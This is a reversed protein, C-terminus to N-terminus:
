VQHQATSVGAESISLETVFAGHDRYPESIRMAPGTYFVPTGDGAEFSYGNEFDKSKPRHEDGILVCDFSVRSQALLRNLDVDADDGRYPTLGDHLCLVNPGPSAAGFAIDSPTWERSHFKGVDDIGVNGAPIGYADVPTGAVATPNTSVETLRGKNVQESLWAVGDVSDAHDPEYSTHDHSGIIGYMPIGSESLVEFRFAVAELTDADVEHDLIDGTHIVADVERDIAIEVVRKVTDVSSIEDIWSVTKGSGTIARNEYGFHTDSVFLISTEEGGTVRGEAQRVREPDLLVDVGDGSRDAAPEAPFESLLAIARDVEDGSVKVPLVEGSEPAVPLVAGSPVYRKDEPRPDAVTIASFETVREGNGHRRAYEKRKGLNREKQQAGYCSAGDALLEGGYLVSRVAEQWESDM